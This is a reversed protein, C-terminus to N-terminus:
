PQVTRRYSHVRHSRAVVVRPMYVAPLIVHTVQASTCGVRFWVGWVSGLM